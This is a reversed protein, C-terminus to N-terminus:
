AVFAFVLLAAATGLTGTAVANDPGLRAKLSPLLFAGGVAGVGICGLLIGYFAPGGGLQQRVILPLLAWYASGFLFFAIARVLTAKLPGSARAYRIGTRIASWFREAPLHRPPAPPPRWWLLALIVSLFSVRQSSVAM